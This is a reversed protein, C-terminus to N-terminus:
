PASILFGTDSTSGASCSWLTATHVLLPRFTMSASFSVDDSDRLSISGHDSSFTFLFDYAAQWKGNDDTDGIWRFPGFHGDAPRTTESGDPRRRKINTTTTRLHLDVPVVDVSLHLSLVLLLSLPRGADAWLNPRLCCLCVLKEDVRRGSMKEALNATARQIVQRVCARVCLRRLRWKGPERPKAPQAKFPRFSPLRTV